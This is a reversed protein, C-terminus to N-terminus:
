HSEQTEQGPKQTKRFLWTNQGQTVGDHAPGELKEVAEEGQELLGWHGELFLLLLKLNFTASRTQEM